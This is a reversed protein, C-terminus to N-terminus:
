TRRNKGNRTICSKCFITSGMLAAGGFFVGIDYLILGASLLMLGLVLLSFYCLALVGVIWDKPSSLLVGDSPLFRKEVNANHFMKNYLGLKQKVKRYTTM